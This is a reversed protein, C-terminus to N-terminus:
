TANHVQSAVQRNRIDGDDIRHLPWVTGPPPARLVRLQGAARSLGGRGDVRYLQQFLLPDAEDGGSVGPPLLDRHRTGRERANGPKAPLRPGLDQAFSRISRRAGAAVPRPKRPTVIGNGRFWASPVLTPSNPNAGSM